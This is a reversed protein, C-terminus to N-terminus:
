REAELMGESTVRLQKAGSQAATLLEDLCGALREAEETQRTQIWLTPAGNARRAIAFVRDRTVLWRGAASAYASVASDPADGGLVNRVEVVDEGASRLVRAVGRPVDNDM